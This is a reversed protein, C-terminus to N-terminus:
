SGPLILTGAGLASSTKLFNRRNSRLM